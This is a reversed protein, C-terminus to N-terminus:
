RSPALAATCRKRGRIACPGGAWWTTPAIARSRTSQLHAIAVGPGTVGDTWGVSRGQVVLAGPNGRRAAAAGGRHPAVRSPTFLRCAVRPGRALSAGSPRVDPPVGGGSLRLSWRRTHSAGGKGIVLQAAICIIGYFIDSWSKVDATMDVGPKLRPPFRSRLPRQIGDGAASSLSQPRGRRM